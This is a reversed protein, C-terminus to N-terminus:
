TYLVVNIKIVIYHMIVGKNTSESSANQTCNYSVTIGNVISNLYNCVSEILEKETGKYPTICDIRLLPSKGINTELFPRLDEPRNFNGNLYILTFM